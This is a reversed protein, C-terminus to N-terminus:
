SLDTALLKVAAEHASDPAAHYIKLVTGDGLEASQYMLEFEGVTPHRFTKVGATCNGVTQGVWLKAFEPSAMTLEGILEALRPDHRHDAAIYRLYSVNQQAELPWDAYLARVNDDLFNLKVVNPRDRDPAAFDLHAAFLKHFLSNWALIDCRFNLVAVAAAGLTNVLMRTHPTLEDTTAPRVPPAPATTGIKLLHAEEAASLDLARAIASLVEPSAHATQAQELRTYYTSSVGALAAVEERRLGPVRRSGRSVLGIEAPQLRERMRRLYSGLDTNVPEPM